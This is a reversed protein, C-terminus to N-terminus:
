GDATPMARAYASSILSRFGVSKAFSGLLVASRTDQTVVVSPSGLGTADSSCIRSGGAYPNRDRTHLWDYRQATVGAAILDSLLPVDLNRSPVGFRLWDLVADEGHVDALAQLQYQEGARAHYVSDALDRIELRERLKMSCSNVSSTVAQRPPSNNRRRHSTSLEARLAAVGAGAREPEAAVAAIVEIGRV